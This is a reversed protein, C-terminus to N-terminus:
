RSATACIQVSAAQGGPLSASAGVDRGFCKTRRRGQAGKGHQKNRPRFSCPTSLRFCRTSRAAARAWAGSPARQSNGNTSPSPTSRSAWGRAGPTRRQQMRRRRRCLARQLLRILLLSLRPTTMITSCPDNKRWCAWRRAGPTRRQLMRRRRRCLVMLLITCVRSESILASFVHYRTSHCPARRAAPRATDVTAELM